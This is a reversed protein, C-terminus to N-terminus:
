TKISGDENIVSLTDLFPLGREMKNGLGEAEVEKM